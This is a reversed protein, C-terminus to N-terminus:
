TVRDGGDRDTVRTRLRRRKVKVSQVARRAAPPVDAWNRPTPLGTHPDADFVDGVDAFAVIAVERLVRRASIECRRAHEWAAAEVERRIDPNTLLDSASRRAAQYGTGPFARLYARTGNRDVVYESVFRRQNPTLPDPTHTDDAM